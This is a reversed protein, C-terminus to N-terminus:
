LCLVGYKNAFYRMVKQTQFPSLAPSYVALAFVSGSMASTPTTGRGGLYYKASNATTGLTNNYGSATTGVVDFNNSLLRHKAHTGDHIHAWLQPYGNEISWDAGAPHDKATYVGGRRALWSAGTGASTSGYIWSGDSLTCDTGHELIIKATVKNVVGLIITFTSISVDNQSILVQGGNFEISPMRSGSLEPNLSYWKPAKASTTQELHNKNGSLDRWLLVRDGTTGDTQFVVNQSAAEFWMILGAFDSPTAVDLDILSGSVQSASLQGKVVVNGWVTLNKPVTSTGIEHHHLDVTKIVNKHHDYVIAQASKDAIEKRISM